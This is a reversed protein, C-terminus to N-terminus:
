GRCIGDAIHLYVLGISATSMLFRIGLDLRPSKSVLAIAVFTIDFALYAGVLMMMGGPVVIGHGSLLYIAGLILARTYYTRALSICFPVTGWPFTVSQRILWSRETFRDLRNGTRRSARGLGTQLTTTNPSENAM